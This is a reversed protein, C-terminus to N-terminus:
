WSVGASLGAGFPTARPAIWATTGSDSPATLVLTLGAGISALGVVFAVTSVTASTRADDHMQLGEPTCYRGDCYGDAENAENNAKVGFVSMVVLGALGIGGLTWGAIRQVSGDSTPPPAEEDDVEDTEHLAPIRITVLESAKPVTISSSWPDTGTATAELEHDGPDVPLPTALSAMGLDKGDLTVQMGERLEEVEVVLHSLRPELASARQRALRERKGDGDRAAWEAAQSYEAWATATRGQQEHCTALHLLTGLQPDLRQSEAFKPCAEAYDGDKGLTKAERFLSEALAAESTAGPAARATTTPYSLLAALVTLLLEALLRAPRRRKARSAM